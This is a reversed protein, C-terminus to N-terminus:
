AVIWNAIFDSLDTRNKNKNAEKTKKPENITNNIGFPSIM